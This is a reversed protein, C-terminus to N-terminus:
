TSISGHKKEGIVKQMTSTESVVPLIEMSQISQTNNITGTNKKSMEPGVIVEYSSVKGKGRDSGGRLTCVQLFSFLISGSALGIGVWVVCKTYLDDQHFYGCDVGNIIFITLLPISLSLVHLIMCIKRIWFIKGFNEVELYYFWGVVEACGTFMFLDFKFTVFITSVLSIVLVLAFYIILSVVWNLFVYGLSVLLTLMVLVLVAPSFLYFLAVLCDNKIVGVLSFYGFDTIKSLRNHFLGIKKCSLYLKQCTKFMCLRLNAYLFQSLPTFCLFGLTLLKLLDSNFSIKFFYLIDLGIELIQIVAILVDLLSHCCPYNLDEPRM